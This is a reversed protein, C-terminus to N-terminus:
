QGKWRAYTPPLGALYLVRGEEGAADLCAPCLRIALHTQDDPSRFETGDSSEKGCRICLKQTM